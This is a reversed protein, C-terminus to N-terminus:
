DPAMTGFCRSKGGVPLEGKLFLSTQLHCLLSSSLASTLCTLLHTFYNPSLTTTPRLNFFPTTSYLFLLTHESDAKQPFLNEKSVNWLELPISIM